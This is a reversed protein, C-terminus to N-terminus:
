TFAHDFYENTQQESLPAFAQETPNLQLHALLNAKRPAMPVAVMKSDVLELEIRQNQILHQQVEIPLINLEFLM